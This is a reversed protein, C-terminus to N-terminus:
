EDEDFIDQELELKSTDIWFPKENVSFDGNELYENLMKKQHQKM